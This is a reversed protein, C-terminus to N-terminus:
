SGRRVLHSSLLVTVTDGVIEASDLRIRFAGNLALQQLPVDATDVFELPTPPTEIGSGGGGSGGPQGPVGSAPGRLLFSALNVVVTDDTLGDIDAVLRFEVPGLSANPDDLTDLPTEPPAINEAFNLRAPVATVMIEVIVSHTLHLVVEAGRSQGLSTDRLVLGFNGVASVRYDGQLTDGDPLFVKGQADTVFEQTFGGVGAVRVTLGVQPDSGSGRTFHLTVSIPQPNAPCIVVPSEPNGYIADCTVPEPVLAPPILLFEVRRNTEMRADADRRDESETGPPRTEIRPFREGCGIMAPDLFRDAAVFVADLGIYVEFLKEWTDVDVGAVRPSGPVGGTPLGHDGRFADLATQTDPGFINNIPGQYYHAGTAANRMYSLMYQIERTQWRDRSQDSGSRAVRAGGNLDLMTQLLSTWIGPQDTLYGFVSLARSDSLGENYRNSGSRDTHGAILVRREPDGNIADAIERIIPKAEPRVFTYDFDFHVGDLIRACIVEDVLRISGQGPNCPPVTILTSGEATAM